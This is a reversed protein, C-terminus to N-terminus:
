RPSGNVIAVADLDFGGTPAAYSTNAGSDRIRVYNAHTVGLQALDFGDGGAVAPDTPSIGNDPSSYVPHVGACGETGGDIPAACPFEFWEGGDESVAVFGTEIFTGFPNEFVLLDVGPGDVLAIDTFELIIVGNKGLSLVDTGGASDGAGQPPGLVVGPLKNQGFGAGPGPTFSVVVDAFPDPPHGADPIGADFAGADPAGADTAGADHAGADAVAADPAGGADAPGGGPPQGCAIVVVALLARKV